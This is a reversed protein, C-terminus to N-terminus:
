KEVEMRNAERIAELAISSVEGDTLARVKLLAKKYIQNRATLLKNEKLARTEQYEIM